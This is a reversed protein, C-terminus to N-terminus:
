RQAAIAWRMFPAPRGHQGVNSHAAIALGMSTHPAAMSGESSIRPRAGVVHKEKELHHFITSHM